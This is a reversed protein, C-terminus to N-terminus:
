SNKYKVRINDSIAGTSYYEVFNFIEKCAKADRPDLFEPGKELAKKVLDKDGPFEDVTKLVVGKSTALDKIFKNLWVSSIQTFTELRAM